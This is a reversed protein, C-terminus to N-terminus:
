KVGSSTNGVPVKLMAMTRHTLYFLEFYLENISFGKKHVLYIVKALIIHYNIYEEKVAEFFSDLGREFCIRKFYINCLQMIRLYCSYQKEVNEEYEYVESLSTLVTQMLYITGTSICDGPEYTMLKQAYPEINDLVYEMDLERWMAYCSTLHSTVEIDFILQDDITATLYYDLVKEYRKQLQPLLHTKDETMHLLIGALEEEERIMENYKDVVQRYNDNLQYPIGDVLKPADEGFLMSEYNDWVEILGIISDRDLEGVDILSKLWEHFMNFCQELAPLFYAIVLLKPIYESKYCLAIRQISSLMFDVDNACTPLQLVNSCILSILEDSPLNDTIKEVLEIAANIAEKKILWSATYSMTSKFTRTFDQNLMLIGELNKSMKYEDILITATKVAQVNDNAECFILFNNYLLDPKKM